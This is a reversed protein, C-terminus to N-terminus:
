FELAGTRSLGCLTLHRLRGLVRGFLQTSDPVEAAQKLRALIERGTSSADEIVVGAILIGKVPGNGGAMITGGEAVVSEPAISATLAKKAADGDGLKRPM